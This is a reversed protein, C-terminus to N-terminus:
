IQRYPPIEYFINSQSFSPLTGFSMSSNYPYAMNFPSPTYNQQVSPTAPTEVVERYKHRHKKHSKRSNKKSQDSEQSEVVVEHDQHKHTKRKKKSNKEEHNSTSSRYKNYLMFLDEFDKDNIILKNMETSLEQEPQYENDFDIHFDYDPKKSPSVQESTESTENLWRVHLDRGTNIDNIPEISSNTILESSEKVPNNTPMSQLQSVPSQVEPSSKISTQRRHHHHHHHHDHSSSNPSLSKTSHRSSPRNHDNKPTEWLQWFEISVQKTRYFYGAFQNKVEYNLAEGGDLAQM